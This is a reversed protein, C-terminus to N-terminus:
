TIFTNCTEQHLNEESVPTTLTRSCICPFLVNLSIRSSKSSLMSELSFIRQQRLPVREFDINYLGSDVDDDEPYDVSVMALSRTCGVGFLQRRTVSWRHQTLADITAVLSNVLHRTDDHGGVLM